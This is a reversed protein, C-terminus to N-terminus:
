VTAFNGSLSLSLSLTHQNDVADRLVDALCDEVTQWKRQIAFDIAEGLAHVPSNKKLPHFEEFKRWGADAAAAFGMAAAGQGAHMAQIADDLNRTCGALRQLAVTFDSGKLSGEVSLRCASANLRSIDAILRPSIESQQQAEAGTAVTMSTDLSTM